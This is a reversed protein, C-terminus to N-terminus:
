PLRIFDADAFKAKHFQNSVMSAYRNRAASGHGTERQQTLSAGHIRRRFAPGGPLRKRIAGAAKCRSLLDTDAACRWDKWGGAHELLRKSITSQGECLYRNVQKAGNDERFSVSECNIISADESMAFDRIRKMMVPMMVDDSDFRMITDHKAQKVLTNSVRYTGSNRPFWLADVELFWPALRMEWEDLTEKCGDIGLLVEFEDPYRQNCISDLCEELYKATRWATVIVSINLRGEDNPKIFFKDM